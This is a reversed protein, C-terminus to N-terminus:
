TSQRYWTWKHPNWNKVDTTTLAPEIFEAIRNVVEAFDAPASLKNTNLFATWMTQRGADARFDERWLNKRQDLKTQRQTFTAEIAQRLLQSDFTKVLALFHIDFFDKMRSNFEGLSVMAEFKEAIASELSYAYVHPNENNLIVPYDLAVPNPIIIDGFGTDIQLIDKIKGLRAPLKTRLGAYRDDETIREVEMEDLKFTVGDKSKIVAIESIIQKLGEPDNTFGEGLLDVDKTPRHLPLQHAVLMLAGKLILKDRYPSQGLRFLFREQMYRRLIMMPEVNQSKAIALLNAWVSAPLNKIEKKTM